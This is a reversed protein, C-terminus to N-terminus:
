VGGTQRHNREQEEDEYRGPDEGVQLFVPTKQLRQIEAEYGERSHPQAIVDRSLGVAFVVVRVWMQVPEGDCTFKWRLLGM